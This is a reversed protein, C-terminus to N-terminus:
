GHDSLPSVYRAIRLLIVSISGGHSAFKSLIDKYVGEKDKGKNTLTITGLIVCFLGLSSESGQLENACICRARGAERKKGEKLSLLRRLRLPWTPNVFVAFEDLM